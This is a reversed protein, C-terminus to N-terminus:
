RSSSRAEHRRVEPDPIKATNITALWLPYRRLPICGMERQRGDSGVTVMHHYNFRSPEADLKRHQAQWALAMGEVIPRM